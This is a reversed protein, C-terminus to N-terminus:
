FPIEPDDEPEQTSEHKEPFELLEVKDAVIETTIRKEGQKTEWERCTIRGTVLVPSGKKMSEAYREGQEGWVVIPMFMVEEKFEGDSNKFIRNNAIAIKCLANGSGLYTLEPDRTLRGGMTVHNISPARTKPM